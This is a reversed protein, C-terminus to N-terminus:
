MLRKAPSLTRKIPDLALGLAELSFAGLLTADGQEGIIVDAGGVYTAGSDVASTM